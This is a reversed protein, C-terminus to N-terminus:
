PNPGVRVEAPNQEVVIMSTLDLTDGAEAGFGVSGISPPGGAAVTLNDLVVGNLSVQMWRSGVGVGSVADIRVIYPTGEGLSVDQTRVLVWPGPDQWRELRVQQLDTDLTVAYTNAGDCRVLVRGVGTVAVRATVRLDDWADEGVGLGVQLYRGDSVRLTNSEPLYATSGAGLFDTWRVFGNFTDEVLLARRVNLREGSPRMTGLWRAYLSLDTVELPDEVWVDSVFPGREYLTSGASDEETALFFMTDTGEAMRREHWTIVMARRGALALLPLRWSEDTGKIRWLQLAWPIMRRLMANPTVAVPGYEGGLGVLWAAYPALRDPLNAAQDLDAQRERRGELLNYVEVVPELAGALIRQQEEGARHAAPLMEMVEYVTLRPM